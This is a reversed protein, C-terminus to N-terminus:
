SAAERGIWHRAEEVKGYTVPHYTGISQARSFEEVALARVAAVDADDILGAGRLSDIMAVVGPDSLDIARDHAVEVWDALTAAAVYAPYAPDGPDVPARAMDRIPVWKFSRSLYAHVEAVTVGKPRSFDPANLSDAVDQHGPMGGYGRALPDARLEDVLAQMEPTM